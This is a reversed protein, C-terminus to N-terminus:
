GDAVLSRRVWEFAFVTAAQSVNLSDVRGAVPLRVLFDCTREVLQSLGAGESGMVLVIRGEIPADWLLDQASASAGMVWYGAEKFRELARTLNPERMIPLHSVAGASTKHAVPGVAASRAKTILVGDAGAVEASRVIAGLNGEDTVQDLAIVLSRDRDGVARLVQALPTYDFPAVEAMVGQHAGRASRKDLASRPTARVPVERERALRRIEEVPPGEAGEAILVATVPTGSRLAEAVANRGEVVASM